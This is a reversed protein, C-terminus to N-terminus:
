GYIPISVGAIEKTEIGTEKTFGKTIGKVLMGVFVAFMVGIMISAVVGMIGSFEEQTIVTDEVAEAVEVILDPTFLGDPM